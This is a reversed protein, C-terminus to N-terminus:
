TRSLKVLQTVSTESCRNGIEGTEVNYRGAKSGCWAITTPQSSGDGVAMGQNDAVSFVAPVVPGVPHRAKSM